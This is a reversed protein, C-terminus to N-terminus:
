GPRATEMEKNIYDFGAPIDLRFREQYIDSYSAGPWREDIENEQLFRDFAEPRDGMRKKIEDLWLTALEGGTKIGSSKSAGAGLVFCLRRDNSSWIDNCFTFVFEKSSINNM